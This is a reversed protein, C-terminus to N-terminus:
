PFPESEPELTVLAPKFLAIEVAASIATAEWLEYAEIMVVDLVEVTYEVETYLTVEVDAPESIVETVVAIIARYVVIQGTVAVLVSTMFGM